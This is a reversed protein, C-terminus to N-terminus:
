VGFSSLATEQDKCIDFLKNLKTIVFVEYLSQKISCLKLTGGSEDVRKSLRILTGWASSSLHKVRGFSLLMKVPAKDEVVSFLSEAM